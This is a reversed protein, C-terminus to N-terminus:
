WQVSDEREGLKWTELHLTLKEQEEVSSRSCEGQKGESIGLEFKGNRM